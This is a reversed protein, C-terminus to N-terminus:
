RTKQNSTLKESFSMSITEKDLLSSIAKVIETRGLRNYSVMYKLYKEIFTEIIKASIILQNSKLQKGLLYLGTLAMPSNIHTKFDLDKDAKLLSVLIEQLSIGDDPVLGEFLGKTM